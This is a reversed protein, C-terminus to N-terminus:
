PTQRKVRCTERADTPKRTARGGKRRTERRRSRGTREVCAGLGVTNEEEGKGEKKPTERKRADEKKRWRKTRRARPPQARRRLTTEGAREREEGSKRWKGWNESREANKDLHFLTSSSSAAPLARPRNRSVKHQNASARRVEKHHLVPCFLRLFAHTEGEDRCVCIRGVFAQQWTLLLVRCLHFSFFAVLSHCQGALRTGAATMSGLPQTTTVGLIRAQSSFCLECAHTECGPECSVCRHKYTRTEMSRNADTHSEDREGQMRMEKEAEVGGSANM